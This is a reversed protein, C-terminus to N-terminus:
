RCIEGETSLTTRYLCFDTGPTFSEVTPDGEVSDIEDGFVGIPPGEDRPQYFIAGRDFPARPCAGLDVRDNPSEISVDTCVKGERPENQAIFRGEYCCVQRAATFDERRAESDISVVTEQLMTRKGAYLKQAEAQGPCPQDADIEPGVERQYPPAPSCRGCGLQPGAALSLLLCLTEVARM